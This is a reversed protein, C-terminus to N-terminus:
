GNPRPTLNAPVKIIAYKRILIILGTMTQSFLTFDIFFRLSEKESGKKAIVDITTKNKVERQNL